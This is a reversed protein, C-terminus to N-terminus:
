CIIHKLACIYPISSTNGLGVHLWTHLVCRYDLDEEPSSPITVFFTSPMSPCSSNDESKESTNYTVGGGGGCM